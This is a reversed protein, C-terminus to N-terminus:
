SLVIVKPVTFMAFLMLATTVNVSELPLVAVITDYYGELFMPDITSFLFDHRLLLAGFYSCCISVVDLFGILLIRPLMDMNIKQKIQDM